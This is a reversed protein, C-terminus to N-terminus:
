AIGCQLTLVGVVGISSGFHLLLLFNSPLHNESLGQTTYSEHTNSGRKEGWNMRKKVQIM